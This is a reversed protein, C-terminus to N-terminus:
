FAGVVAANILVRIARFPRGPHTLTGESCGITGENDNLAVLPHEAEM